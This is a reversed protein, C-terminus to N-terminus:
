SKSVCVCMKYINFEISITLTYIIYYTFVFISFCIEHRGGGRASM